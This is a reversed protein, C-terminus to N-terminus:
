FDKFDAQEHAGECGALCWAFIALYEALARERDETSSRSGGSNYVKVARLFVAEEPQAELDPLPGEAADLLGSYYNLYKTTIVHEQNKQIFTYAAAVAKELQNAKCVKWEQWKGSPRWGWTLFDEPLGAKAPCLLKDRSLGNRHARCVSCCRTRTKRLVLEELCREVAPKDKELTLRNRQWLRREEAAVAVGLAAVRPLAPPKRQSSLAPKRAARGAGSRSKPGTENREETEAADEPQLLFAPAM